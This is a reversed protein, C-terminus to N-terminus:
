KRGYDAPNEGWKKTEWKRITPEFGRKTMAELYELASEIKKVTKSVDTVHEADDKMLYTNCVRKNVWGIAVRSDSYIPLDACNAKELISIAKVIALFEAINNTGPTRESAYIIEDITSDYIQFECMSSGDSNNGETGGDVAIYQHGLDIHSSSLEVNDDKLQNLRNGSESEEYVIDAESEKSHKAAPKALPVNHNGESVRKELKAVFLENGGESLDSLKYNNSQVYDIILDEESLLFSKFLAGSFGTVQDQCEPWTSYMGPVNGRLVVYIKAKKSM